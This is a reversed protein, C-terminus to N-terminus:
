AQITLTFIIDTPPTGFLTFVFLILITFQKISVTDLHLQSYDLFMKERILIIRKRSTELEMGTETSCVFALALTLFHVENIFHLCKM